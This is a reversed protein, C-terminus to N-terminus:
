FAIRLGFRFTRQDLNERGTNRISTVEGFASSSANGNPNNFHPTNTFNFAEARFQVEVGETVMFKRFLGLDMNFQRPGHMTNFGLTGFRAETVPAFATTDFWKQGPGIAGLIAVDSKVEDARQTSGPMNLSAGSATVSFPFGSQARVVTNLQWGGLIMAGPGDTLWPRGRGFPSEMIASVNFRHPM